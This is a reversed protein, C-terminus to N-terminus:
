LIVTVFEYMEKMRLITRISGRGNESRNHCIFTYGPKMEVLHQGVKPSIFELVVISIDISEVVL